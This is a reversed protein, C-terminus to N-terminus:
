EDIGIHGVVVFEHEGEGPPQWRVSVTMRRGDVATTRRGNPLAAIPTDNEAFAALHTPNSWARALRENAIFSADARYKADSVARVAAGQMGIVALIGFSFILVAVLAELLTAGTQQKALAIKM